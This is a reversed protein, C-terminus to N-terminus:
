PTNVFQNLLNVPLAYPPALEQNSVCATWSIDSDATGRRLTTITSPPVFNGECAPDTQPPLLAFAAQIQDFEAPTLIRTRLYGSAVGSCQEQKWGQRQGDVAIVNVCVGNSATYQFFPRDLYDQPTVPASCALSMAAGALLLGRATM